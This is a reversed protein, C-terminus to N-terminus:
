MAAHAKLDRLLARETLYFGCCVCRSPFPNVGKTYSIGESLNMSRGQPVARCKPCKFRFMALMIFLIFFSVFGFHFTIHAGTERSLDLYDILLELLLVEGILAIMSFYLANRKPRFKKINEFQSQVVDSDSLDITPYTSYDLTILKTLKDLIPMTKLKM